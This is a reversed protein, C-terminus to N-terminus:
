GIVAMLRAHARRLHRQMAAQAQLPDHDAVADYIEQHEEVAEQWVKANDFLRHLSGGLPTYRQDFLEELTRTLLPNDATSSLTVHFLRDADAIPRDGARDRALLAKRMAAVCAALTRLQRASIFRAAHAAIGGELFYRTQHVDKPSHGLADAGEVAGEPVPGAGHTAARKLYIGSGVRIEIEGQVELVVLAERLTPRSIELRRALDRESPLREGERVGLRTIERRLIDAVHMYGRSRERLHLHSAHDAHEM